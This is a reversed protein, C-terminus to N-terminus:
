CPPCRAPCSAAGPFGSRLRGRRRRRGPATRTLVPVPRRKLGARDPERVVKRVPCEGLRRVMARAPITSNCRRRFDDPRRGSSAHVLNRQHQHQYGPEGQRGTSRCGAWGGSHAAIGDGNRRQLLDVALGMGAPELIAGEGGVPNDGFEVGGAGWAQQDDRAALRLGQGLRDDNGGSAASLEVAGQRGRRQCSPDLRGEGLEADERGHPVLV